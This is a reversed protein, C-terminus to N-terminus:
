GGELQLRGQKVLRNSEVHRAFLLFISLCFIIPFVFDPSSHKQTFGTSIREQGPSLRKSTNAQLTWSTPTGLTTSSNSSAPELEVLSLPFLCLCLSVLLKNLLERKRAKILRHNM